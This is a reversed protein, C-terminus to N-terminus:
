SETNDESEEPDAADWRPGDPMSAADAADWRPGEAKRVGEPQDDTQAGEDPEMTSM